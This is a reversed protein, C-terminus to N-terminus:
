LGIDVGFTSVDIYRIEGLIEALNKDVQDISVWHTVHKPWLILQKTRLERLKEEVDTQCQTGEV